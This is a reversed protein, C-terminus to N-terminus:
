LDCVHITSDRKDKVEILIIVLVDQFKIHTILNLGMVSGRESHSNLYKERKIQFTNNIVMLPVQNKHSGYRRRLTHDSTTYGFM